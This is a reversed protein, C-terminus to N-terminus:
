IAGRREIEGKEKMQTPVKLVLTDAIKSTFKKDSVALNALGSM